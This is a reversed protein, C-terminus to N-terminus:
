LFLLTTVLPALVTQTAVKVFRRVEKAYLTWLGVWNVAGLRRPAPPAPQMRSSTPQSAPRVMPGAGARRLGSPRRSIEAPSRPMMAGHRVASGGPSAPAPGDGGFGQV